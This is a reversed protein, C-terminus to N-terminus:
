LITITKIVLMSVLSVISISPLKRSPIGGVISVRDLSLVLRTDHITKVRETKMSKM